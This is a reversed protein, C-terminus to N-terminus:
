PRATTGGPAPAASVSRPLQKQRIENVLDSAPAFDPDLALAERAATLAELTKGDRFRFEAELTWAAATPKSKVMAAVATRAATKDGAEYDISALRLQAEAALQRDNRLPEVTSRAEAWRKQAILFDALALTSRYRQPTQAAATTLYAEAESLRGQALALAALSRNLLENAPDIKRAATLHAEADEPQGADLLAQALAVRAAVSEPHEAVVKELDEKKEPLPQGDVMRSADALARYGEATRGLHTLAEGMKQQAVSSGPTAKVANRYEILAADHRGELAYRDGRELHQRAQEEPSATCAGAFMALTAFVLLRGHM